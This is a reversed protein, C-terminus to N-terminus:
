AGHQTHQTTQRRERHWSLKERGLFDTQRLHPVLIIVSAFHSISLNSVRACYRALNLLVAMRNGVDKMLLLMPSRRLRQARKYSARPPLKSSPPRQSRPVPISRSNPPQMFVLLTGDQVCRMNRQLGCRRRNDDCLAMAWKHIESM